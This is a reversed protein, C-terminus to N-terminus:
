SWEPFQTKNLDLTAISSMDSEDLAFDFINM